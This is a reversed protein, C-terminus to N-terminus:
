MKLSLIFIHVCFLVFRFPARTWFRFFQILSHFSCIHLIITNLERQPILQYQQEQKTHRFSVFKNSKWFGSITLRFCRQLDTALNHYADMGNYITEIKIMGIYCEGIGNLVFPFDIWRSIIELRLYCRFPFFIKMSFLIIATSVLFCVSSLTCVTGFAAQIKLIPSCWSDYRIWFQHFYIIRFLVVLSFIWRNKDILVMLMICRLSHLRVM